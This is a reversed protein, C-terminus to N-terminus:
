QARAKRQRVACLLVSAGCLLAFLLMFRPSSQAAPVTMVIANQWSHFLMCLFVSKTLVYIAALIFGTLIGTLAYALFNEENQLSGPLFFYPLHWLVWVAGTLLASPLLPYKQCLCPLLYGRWGGEELGGGFLFQGAFAASLAPLSLAAGSPMCFYFNLFQAAFLAFVLAATRPTCSTGFLFRGLWNKETRSRGLLVLACLLPAANELFDLLAFLAQHSPGDIVTMAGACCWTLFFTTLIFLVPRYQGAGTEYKDAM